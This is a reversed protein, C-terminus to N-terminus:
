DRSKTLLQASLARILARGVDTPLEAFESHIYYQDVEHGLGVGVLSVLHEADIKDIVSLVHDVLIDPHNEMLTSDDVPAGDSLVLLIKRNERREM